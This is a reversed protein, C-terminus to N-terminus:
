IMEFDDNAFCHFWDHASPEASAFAAMEVDNIIRDTKVICVPWGPVGPAIHGHDNLRYAFFATESCSIGYRRNRYKIRIYQNLLGKEAFVGVFRMLIDIPKSEEISPPPTQEASM